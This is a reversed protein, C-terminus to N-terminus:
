NFPLDEMEAEDIESFDTSLMKENSLSDEKTSKDAFQMDNIIYTIGHMKIVVESGDELAINKDYSQISLKGFFLYRTGKKLTKLYYDIRKASGFIVCRIFQTKGNNEDAVNFLLRKKAEGNKTYESEEVDNCIRGLILLQNM